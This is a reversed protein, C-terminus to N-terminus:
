GTAEEELVPEPEQAEDNDYNVLSVTKASVGNWNIDVSSSVGVIVTYSVPGDIESDDVGTITITQYVNWNSPTFTITSHSLEGETPDSITIPFTVDALPASDLVVTFSAAGGGESTSLEPAHTITYKGTATSVPSEDVNNNGANSQPEPNGSPAVTGGCVGSESKMAGNEVFMCVPEGTARDFITIGSAALNNTDGVTLSKTQIFDAVIAVFRVYANEITAGLSSFWGSVISTVTSTSTQGMTSGSALLSEISDLRSETLSLRATTSALSIDLEKVANVISALIPREALSLYGQSNTFVAEPIFEGINQASFGAYVNFTELGSTGNWRYLIPTIGRIDALGRGFSGTIDKLREDSSATVNGLTDTVLNGGASGLAEFRVTGTNTLQASPSTTGIGVNGGSTVVFRSSTALATVSSVRFLDSTANNLGVLDLRAAPTTSGIGVSGSRMTVIQEGAAYFTLLNQIAGIDSGFQIGRDSGVVKVDIVPRDTGGQYTSLTFPNNSSFRNTITTRYIDSASLRIDTQANQRYAEITTGPTTTGIGVNGENTIRLREVISAGTGGSNTFFTLGSQFNGTNERVGAIRAGISDSGFFDFDIAASTGVAGGENKLKVGAITNGSSSSYVELKRTASVTGIGVNGNDLVTVRPTNASDALQLLNGTGTGSGTVSLKASPSTTGIGVNGNDLVTFREVNASNAVTFARGTGTGSGTVSLKASPSTTGIGFNGTPSVAFSYAGAVDDFLGIGGALTGASDSAIIRWSRGGTGTNLLGLSLNGQAALQASGSITLSFGPTTTGIGVNGAATIRMKESATVGSSTYFAMVSGYGGGSYVGLAKLNIVSTGVGGPNTYSGDVGFGSGYNSNLSPTNVMLSSGATGVAGVTLQGTTLTSGGVGWSLSSSGTFSVTGTATLNAVSLNGSFLGDGQVSFKQSPTTTGIGVNGNDLVTFRETNASNAVTFARGTGTGSGTVALRAVPSTTGIGVATTTYRVLETGGVYFSIPRGSNDGEFYSGVSDAGLRFFSGPTSASHFAGVGVVDLARSPTTTGIGVNGSATVTFRTSGSTELHLDNADNTGLIAAAGFSNGNHQFFSAGFGLSSTAISTVNGSQGFLVGSLSGVSLGSTTTTGTATMDVSTLNGTFYGNGEVSLRESPSTTGIGVNGTSTIRMAESAGTYFSLLAAGVGSATRSQIFSGTADVGFDLQNVSNVVKVNTDDATDRAVVLRQTPSTTGIGINGDATVTVRAIGNTEFNLDFADNTGITTTTGFSNGDNMFADGVIAAVSTTGVDGNAAVLIGTLGGLTLSGQVSINGGVSANDAISASGLVSLEKGVEVNGSLTARISPGVRDAGGRVNLMAIEAMNQANAIQSELAARMAALEASGSSPVTSTVPVYVVSPSTQNAPAPNIVTVVQTVPRVPEEDDTDDITATTFAFDDGGIGFLRAFYSGTRDFIPNITRYVSVAISEAVSRFSLDESLASSAAALAMRNNGDIARAVEMVKSPLSAAVEATDITREGIDEITTLYSNGVLRISSAIDYITSEIARSMSEGVSRIGEIAVGRRSADAIGAGGVILAVAVTGAAVKDLLGSLTTLSSQSIIPRSISAKSKKLTPLFDRDDSHYLVDSISQPQASERIVSATSDVVPVAAPTTTLDADLTAQERAALYGKLSDECVFWARGVIRAEIKKARILQGIYDQAYGYVKSAKRSSIYKKGDVILHEDNM